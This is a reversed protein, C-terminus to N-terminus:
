TKTTRNIPNICYDSCCVCLFKTKTKWRTQFSKVNQLGVFCSTFFFPLNCFWCLNLILYTWKRQRYKSRPSFYLLSWIERSASTIKYRFANERATQTKNIRTRHDMPITKFNKIIYNCNQMGGCIMRWSFWHKHIINKNLFNFLLCKVKSYPM